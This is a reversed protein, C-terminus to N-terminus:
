NDEKDTRCLCIRRRVVLSGINWTGVRVRFCWDPKGDYQLSYTCMGPHPTTGEEKLYTGGVLVKQNTPAWLYQCGHPNKSSSTECPAHGQKGWVM